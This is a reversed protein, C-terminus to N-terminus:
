VPIQRTPRVAWLDDVLRDPHTFWDFHMKTYGNIGYKKGWSGGVWITRDPISYGDAYSCHGGVIYDDVDPPGLTHNEKDLYMAREPVMYGFAVPCGLAIANLLGDLNDIREYVVGAQKVADRVRLADERALKGPLKFMNKSNYRWKTEHAVGDRILADFCDRIYAGEDRETEGIAARAEYYVMARSLQGADGDWGMVIELATTTGHGTCSNFHGQDHRRFNWGMPAVTQPIVGHPKLGWHRDKISPPEPRWIGLKHGTPTIPSDLM